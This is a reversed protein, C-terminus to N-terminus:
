KIEMLSATEESACSSCLGLIELRHSDPFFDFQQGIDAEIEDLRSDSFEIVKRCKKCRLHCHHGRGYVPEYHMHGDELFVESILGAEILLPITRYISAKSVGTNKKMRIFLEDVDFHDTSSLIEEIISEREPTHRMGKKKLLNRFIQLEDRM